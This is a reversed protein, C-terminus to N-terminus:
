IGTATVYVGCIAGYLRWRVGVQIRAVLIADPLNHRGWKVSDCEVEGVEIHLTIVHTLKLVQDYSSIIIKLM